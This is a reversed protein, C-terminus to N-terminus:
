VNSHDGGLLQKRGRREMARMWGNIGPTSTSPNSYVNHINGGLGIACLDNVSTNAPQGTCTGVAINYLTAATNFDLHM